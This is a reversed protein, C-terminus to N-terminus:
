SDQFFDAIAQPCAGDDDKVLLGAQDSCREIQEIKKDPLGASPASGTSLRQREDPIQDPTDFFSLSLFLENGHKAPHALVRPFGIAGKSGPCRHGHRAKQIIKRFLNMLM